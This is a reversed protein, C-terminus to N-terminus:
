SVQGLQRLVYRSVLRRAQTWLFSEKAWSDMKGQWAEGIAWYMAKSAGFTDFANVLLSPVFYSEEIHSEIHDKDKFCEGVPSGTRVEKLHCYFCDGGSPKPVQGAKMAMIFDSAYKNVRKRLKQIAEPDDGEGTLTDGLIVCKDKFTALISNDLGERANSLYWVGREQMLSWNSPLGANIREKTTKTKWGGSDLMISGDSRYTVVDTDHYLIAICGEGRNKLYTNHGIKRSTRNRLVTVAKRYSSYDM